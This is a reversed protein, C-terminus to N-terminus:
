TPVSNCKHVGNARLLLFYLVALGILFAAPRALVVVVVGAEVAIMGHRLAPALVELSGGAVM